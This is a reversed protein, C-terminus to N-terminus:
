SKTTAGTSCVGVHAETCIDNRRELDLNCINVHKQIPTLVKHMGEKQMQMKLKVTLTM